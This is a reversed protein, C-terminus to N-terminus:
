PGDMKLLRGPGAVPVRALQAMHWALVLNSSLVPLGLTAELGDIVPLTRLNTCSLFVGDVDANACLDLAADIIATPAIRVVKAEESQAFTGFVPTEIGQAALVTRLQDSVAAIYPSLLALRRIGLQRCAAILASVPDTVDAVQRGQRVLRAIQEPGIQAAGSTCGYAVAALDAGPPLLSAATGLHAAMEALTERTVRLDSPVRSVYVQADGLLSRLEGEITEDSQLVVLGLSPGVTVSDYAYVTV